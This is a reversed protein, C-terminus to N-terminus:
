NLIDIGKGLKMHEQLGEADMYCTIKYQEGQLYQECLTRYEELQIYEDEVVVLQMMM